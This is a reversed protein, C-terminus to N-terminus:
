QKFHAWTHGGFVSLLKLETLVRRFHPNMTNDSRWANIYPYEIGKCVEKWGLLTNDVIGTLTKALVKDSNYLAKEWSDM